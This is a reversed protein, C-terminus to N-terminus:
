ESPVTSMKSLLKIFFAESWLKVPTNRAIYWVFDYWDRGKVWVNWVGAYRSHSQVVSESTTALFILACHQVSHLRTNKAVVDTSTSGIANTTSSTHFTWTLVSIGYAAYYQM